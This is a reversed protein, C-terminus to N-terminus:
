ERPLESVMMVLMLPKSPCPVFGFKAYFSAAAADKADVFLAYGGVAEATERVRDMANMLLDAGAGQGQRAMAVASRALTYAPVEPPLRRAMQPPLVTIPVMARMAAVGSCRNM